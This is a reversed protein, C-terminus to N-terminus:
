TPSMRLPQFGSATFHIYDTSLQRPYSLPLVSPRLRLLFSPSLPECISSSSVGPVSKGRCRDYITTIWGSQDVKIRSNSDLSSVWKRFSTSVDVLDFTLQIHTASSPSLTRYVPSRPSWFCHDRHIDALASSSSSLAFFFGFFRFQSASVSALRIYRYAKRSDRMTFCGQSNSNSPFHCSCFSLYRRNELRPKKGGRKKGYMQQNRSHLLPYIVTPIRGDFCRDVAIKGM